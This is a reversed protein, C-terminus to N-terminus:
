SGTQTVSSTFSAIVFNTLAYSAFVILLGIIANIIMEKAKKIQAPDGRSLFGWLAGAYILVLLLLVGVIGLVVSIINGIFKWPDGAEELGVNGAVDGLNSVASGALIVSPLYLLVLFGIILLFSFLHKFKEQKMFLLNIKRKLASFEAGLLNIITLM